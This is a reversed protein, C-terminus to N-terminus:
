DQPVSQLWWGVAWPSLHDQDVGGFAFLTPAIKKSTNRVRESSLNAALLLQSGDGLRWEVKVHPADADHCGGGNMGRLRPVIERRRLRLLGGYFQLMAEAEDLHSWDLKAARFAAESTPDLAHAADFGPLRSLEKKRGERVKRNLEEEFDCFYPFPETASWEEGMFLMPVQPALLYVAALAKLAESPLSAAMRDGMARNGIQDHNQIFSVFATPPLHASPSGRATGRYPMHQGQFVFGQALAHGIQAPGPEYDRYYAFHEGTAAIHLVHHVDDNWQADFCVPRGEERDLLGAENDENEAIIHISRAGAAARVRRSLERLLHEDGDDQIAHVADLRLGDLHFTEIWYIANQIVFERIMRSNDGDFNIGAGWPTAHRENFLPMYAALYNGDPGFHNYVVDLFVSIGRAHAADVLAMLDEPRGYSCEPAYLLVGDYGWGFRGPFDAIPMIEIATIGLAALHDLRDIAARFTGQQTFAGIHLEYLITEEWSRGKWGGDTWAFVTLDVVESPGHVDEPQFRSAPDPVELGDPMRFKYRTGPGLGPVFCKHWGGEGPMMSIPARSDVRM